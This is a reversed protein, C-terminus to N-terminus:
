MTFALPQLGAQRDDPAVVALLAALGANLQALSVADLRALAGPLLGRAPQPAAAIVAQGQETLSLSVVRQDPQDRLKRVQSKKVLAEVLNSATTQHISMRAALEGMRLGPQEWIEQMVWLQAGSVGCQKEIQMSHRQAARMLVRLGQLAQSREQNLEDVGAVAQAATKDQTM